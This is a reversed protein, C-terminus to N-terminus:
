GVRVRGEKWQAQKSCTAHFHGERGPQRAHFPTGPASSVGAGFWLWTAAPFGM